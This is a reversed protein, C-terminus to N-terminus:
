VPLAQSAFRDIWDREAAQLEGALQVVEGPDITMPPVPKHNKWNTSKMAAAWSVAQASKNRRYLFVVRRPRHKLQEIYHLHILAVTDGDSLEHGHEGASLGAQ